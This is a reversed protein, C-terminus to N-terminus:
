GRSHPANRSQPAGPARGRPRAAIRQIVAPGQPRMDSSASTATASGRRRRRKRCRAAHRTAEGHRERDQHQQGGAAREVPPTGSGGLRMLLGAIPGARWPRPLRRRAIATRARTPASWCRRVDDRRVEEHIRFGAALAVLVDVLLPLARHVVERREVVLEVALGDLVHLVHDARPGALPAGAAVIVGDEEVAAEVPRDLFLDIRRFRLGPQAAHRAVGDHVHAAAHAVAIEGHLIRRQM